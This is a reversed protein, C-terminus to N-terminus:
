TFHSLRALEFHMFRTRHVRSYLIFTFTSLVQVASYQGLRTSLFEGSGRRTADIIAVKPLGYQIIHKSLIAYQMLIRTYLKHIYTYFYQEPRM